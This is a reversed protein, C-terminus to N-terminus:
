KREYSLNQNEHIKNKFYASLGKIALEIEKPSLYSFALRVEYEGGERLYFFSMPTFIVQYKEACLAVDAKSIKFPLKVTLFFGGGPENWSIENAWNANLCKKLTKITLNRKQKMARLKVTNMKLFSGKNKLLMGGFIAQNVASTNVTLYGKTKAMLGSLALQEGENIVIQDAALISLRLTPYLTKSFSRLYIVRKNRDLAKLTPLKKDQYVFDGYANDEVIFFDYKAAMELLAKRKGLPMSNGTPNQFDPITYVLKVKKGSVSIKEIQQEIDDLSIGDKLVSVPEVQYGAIRCFHTIGIYCPDEVLVVDNERDCLTLVSIAMAEQTGVTMVLDDATLQIDEDNKLFEAALENVIGKAANYQGLKKVVEERKLGKEAAVHEVYFDFCHSFNELKFYDEDPRGSALSIADPYMQQVENLFGMVDEGISNLLPNITSSSQKM